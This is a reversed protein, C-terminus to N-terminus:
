QESDNEGSSLGQVRRGDPTDRHFIIDAYSASARSETNDSDTMLYIRLIKGPEEGPYGKKYDEYLDRSEMVWEGANELGSEAVFRRWKLKWLMPIITTETKFMLSDPLTNSWVYAVERITNSNKKLISIGIKAPFDDYKTELKGDKRVRQKEITSYDVKWRWTIYPYELVEMLHDLGQEQIDESFSRPPRKCEGLWPYVEPDLKMPVGQLTPIQWFLGGSRESVIHVAGNVHTLRTPSECRDWDRRHWKTMDVPVEPPGDAGIEPVPGLMAVLIVAVRLFNV